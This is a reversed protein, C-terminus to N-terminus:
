WVRGQADLTVSHPQGGPTNLPYAVITETRPDIRGIQHTGSDTFWVRGQTDVVLDHPRSGLTSLKFFDIQATANQAFVQETSIATNRQAFATVFILFDQFDVKGDPHLDYRLQNTGFAQILAQFDRQDIVGNRDFDIDVTTQAQGTLPVLLTLVFLWLRFKSM